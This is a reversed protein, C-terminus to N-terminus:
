EVFLARARLSLGFGRGTGRFLSDHRAVVEKEKKRSEKSGKEKHGHQQRRLVNKGKFNL